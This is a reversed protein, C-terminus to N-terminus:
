FWNWALIFSIQFNQLFRGGFLALFHSNKAKRIPPLPDRHPHTFGAIIRCIHVAGFLPTKQGLLGRPVCVLFKGLDTVTTKYKTCNGGCKSRTESFVISLEFTIRRFTDNKAM